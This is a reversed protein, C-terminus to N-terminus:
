KQCKGCYFTSRGGQMERVLATGCILCSENERGYVRIRNVFKGKQGNADRYTNVSSGRLRVAMKLIKRTAAHLLAIEKDKLDSAKRSPHIGSEFLIESAYINGIGAVFNQNLLLPKIPSNHKKLAGSLWSVSFKKELPEPGIKKFYSIEKLDGVIQLRGFMRYDNYHLASNNSLRLTVKTGRSPAPDGSVIMQGTMGLQVIWQDASDFFRIIIAKGRRSVSAIVRGKLRRVFDDPRVHRIVRPDLVQVEEIKFGTIKAKLDRAITEVEPLEPM